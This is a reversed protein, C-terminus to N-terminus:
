KFFVYTIHVNQHHSMANHMCINKVVWFWVMYLYKDLKAYNVNYVGREGLVEISRLM